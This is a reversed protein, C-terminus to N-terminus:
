PLTMWHTDGYAVKYLERVAARMETIKEDQSHIVEVKDRVEYRLRNLELRLLRIADTMDEITEDYQLAGKQLSAM